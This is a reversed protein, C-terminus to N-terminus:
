RVTPVGNLNRGETQPAQLPRETRACKELDVDALAPKGKRMSARFGMERASKQAKPPCVGRKAVQAWGPIKRAM